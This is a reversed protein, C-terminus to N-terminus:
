EGAERCTGCRGRLEIAAATTAFGTAGALDCLRDAAEGGSLIAVGGCDKCIAVIWREEGSAATWANLTEIRIVHGTRELDRLVRYVTGPSRVGDGSLAALLEYATMPRGRLKMEELVRRGRLAASDRVQRSAGMVMACEAEGISVGYVIVYAQRL